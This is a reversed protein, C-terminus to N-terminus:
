LINNEIIKIAELKAQLLSNFLYHVEFNFDGYGTGYETGFGEITVPDKLSANLMVYKVKDDKNDLIEYIAILLDQNVLTELIETLCCSKQCIAEAEQKTLITKNENIIIM